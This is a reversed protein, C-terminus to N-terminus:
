AGRLRAYLVAAAAAVGLLGLGFGALVMSHVRDAPDDRGSEPTIGGAQVAADGTRRAPAAESSAPRGIAAASTAASVPQGPAPGASGDATGTGPVTAPATPAPVSATPAPSETAPSPEPPLVVGLPPQILRGPPTAPVTPVPILTGQAAPAGGALVLVAGIAAAAAGRGMGGHIGTRSQALESRHQVM